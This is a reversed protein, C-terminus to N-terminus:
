GWMVFQVVILIVVSAGVIGKLQGISKDRYTESIAREAEWKPIQRLAHIGLAALALCFVGYIIYTVM